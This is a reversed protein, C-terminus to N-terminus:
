TLLRYIDIYTSAIQKWKFQSFDFDKYGEYSSPNLLIM